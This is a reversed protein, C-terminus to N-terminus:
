DFTISSIVIVMGSAVDAQKLNILINKVSKGNVTGNAVAADYISEDDDEVGGNGQFKLLGIPTVIDQKAVTSFAVWADQENEVAQTTLVLGNIVVNGMGPIAITSSLQLDSDGSKAVAITINPITTPTPGAYVIATATYNGALTDRYDPDDKKCGSFAVLSVGLALAIMSKLVKKM